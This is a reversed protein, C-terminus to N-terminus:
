SDCAHLIKLTSQLMLPIELKNIVLFLPKNADNFVLGGGWTPLRCILWKFNTRM